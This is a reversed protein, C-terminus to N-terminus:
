VSMQARWSLFSKEITADELGGGAAPTADSHIAGQRNRLFGGHRRAFASQIESMVSLAIEEETEAGIDLGVPAFLRTQEGSSLPRGAEACDQVLKLTRQKPGLIGIYPIEFEM